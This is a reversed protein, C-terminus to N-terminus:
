SGAGEQEHHRERRAVRQQEIETEADDEVLIEKMLHVTTPVMAFIALVGLAAMWIIAQVM